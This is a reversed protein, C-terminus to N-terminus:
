NKGQELDGYFDRTLSRSGGSRQSDSAFYAGEFHRQISRLASFARRPGGSPDGENIGLRQLSRARAAPCCLVTENAIRHRGGTKKTQPRQFFHTQITGHSTLIPTIFLCLARSSVMLDRLSCLGSRGGTELVSEGIYTLAYIKKFPAVAVHGSGNQSTSARRACCNGFRHNRRANQADFTLRMACSSVGVLTSGNQYLSAIM